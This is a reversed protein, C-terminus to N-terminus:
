EYPKPEIVLTQLTSTRHRYVTVSFGRKILREREKQLWVDNTIRGYRTNSKVNPHLWKTIRKREVEAANEKTCIEIM